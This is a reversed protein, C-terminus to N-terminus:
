KTSEVSGQYFQADKIEKIRAIAGSLNKWRDGSDSEKVGAIIASYEQGMVPNALWKAYASGLATSAIVSRQKIQDVQDQVAISVAQIPLLDSMGITPLDSTEGAGETDTNGEDNSM